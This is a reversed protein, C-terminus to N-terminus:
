RVAALRGPPAFPSPPAGAHLSPGGPTIAPPPAAIASAKWVAPGLTDFHAAAEGIMVLVANGKLEARHVAPRGHLHDLVKRYVAAFRAASDAERFALLWVVSVADGKRLMVLRDGAWRDALALDPSAMGRTNELIIRLGLEGLTDEDSKHWGTMRAQYGAVTVTAPLTPHDFYLSPDSIQQTSQPPESYLKDVAKWGGRRYAEAVFKVGDTYQFILPEAVGRPVGAAAGTFTESFSKLNSILTALIASDMRGLMCAYGAITADGEAVSHLALARDGDNKLAEDKAGFDFNQDQLAHTFEHALIMNDLRAQLEPPQGPFERELAGSVIVMTKKKFDYFAIVQSELLDMNAAKLNVGPPYLGILAGARGDTDISEPTYESELEAELLKGAEETSRVVVPVKHKLKLLRVEQVTRAVTAAELESVKGDEAQARACPAAGAAALLIAALASFLVRRLFFRTPYRM